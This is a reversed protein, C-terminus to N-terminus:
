KDVVVNNQWNSLCLQAANIESVFSRYLSFWKACSVLHTYYIHKFAASNGQSKTKDKENFACKTGTNFHNSLKM